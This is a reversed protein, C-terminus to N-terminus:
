SDLHCWGATVVKGASDQWITRDLIKMNDSGIDDPWITWDLIMMNDSGIDDPWITWDLIMMNDSGIGMEKEDDQVDCCIQTAEGRVTDDYDDNCSSWGWTIDLSIHGFMRQFCNTNFNLLGSTGVALSKTVRMYIQITWVKNFVILSPWWYFQIRGQKQTQTTQVPHFAINSLFM